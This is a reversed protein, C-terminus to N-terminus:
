YCDPNINSLEEDEKLDYISKPESQSKFGMCGGKPNLEYCDRKGYVFNTIPLESNNCNPFNIDKYGCEVCIAM